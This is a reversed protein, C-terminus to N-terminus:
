FLTVQKSIKGSPTRIEVFYLGRELSNFKYAAAAVRASKRTALTKGSADMLRVTHASPKVIRVDISTRAQGVEALPASATPEVATTSATYGGAAYIIGKYLLDQIDKRAMIEEKHGFGSMFVRGKKEENVWAYPLYNASTASVDKANVTLLIKNNKNDIPNPKFQYWEEAIMNFESTWHSTIWALQPSQGVTEKNMRAPVWSASGVYVSSIWDIYWPWNDRYWTDTAGHWGAVGGGKKEVFDIMIQKQEANLLRGMHTCNNLVLVDCQALNAATFDSMKDTVFIEYKYKDPNQGSALTKMLETGMPITSHVHAPGGNSLIFAKKLKPVMNPGPGQGHLAAASVALLWAAIAWKSTHGTKPSMSFSKM